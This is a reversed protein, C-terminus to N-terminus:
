CQFRSNRYYAPQWLSDFRRAREPNDELNMQSAFFIFSASMVPHM